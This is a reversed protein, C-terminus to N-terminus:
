AAEAHDKMLKYKISDILAEFSRRHSAKQKKVGCKAVKENKGGGKKSTRAASGEAAVTIEKPRPPAQPVPAPAGTASIASGSGAPTSSTPTNSAAKRARVVAFMIRELAAAIQVSLGARGVLVGSKADTLVAEATTYGAATLSAAVNPYLNAGTNAWNVKGGSAPASQPAMPVHVGGGTAPTRFRNAAPRGGFATALENRADSTSIREDALELARKVSALNVYSAGPIPVVVYCDECAPIAIASEPLTETGIVEATFKVAANRVRTATAESVAKLKEELLARKMIAISGGIFTEGGRIFSAGSMPQMNKNCFGCARTTGDTIPVVPERWTADSRRCAKLEDVDLVGAEHNGLALKFAGIDIAKVNLKFSMWAAKDAVQFDVAGDPHYFTMAAPYNQPTTNHNSQHPRNGRNQQNYM